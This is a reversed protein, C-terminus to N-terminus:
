NGPMEAQVARMAVADEHRAKHLAHKTTDARLTVIDGIAADPTIPTGPQLAGDADYSARNLLETEANEAWNRAAALRGATPAQWSVTTGKSEKDPHTVRM